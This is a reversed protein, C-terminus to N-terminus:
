SVLNLRSGFSLRQVSLHIASSRKQAFRSRYQPDTERNSPAESLFLFLFFPFASQMTNMSLVRSLRVPELTCASPLRTAPIRPFSIELGFLKISRSIKETSREAVPHFNGCPLFGHDRDTVNRVRERRPAAEIQARAARALFDYRSNRLRRCRRAQDIIRADSYIGADRQCACEILETSDISSLRPSRVRPLPQPRIKM